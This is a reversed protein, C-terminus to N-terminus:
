SVVTSDDKIYYPTNVDLTDIATGATNTFALCMPEHSDMTTATGTTPVRWKRSYGESPETNVVMSTCGYFMAEYCYGGLKTSPLNPPCLLNTSDIFFGFFRRADIEDVLGKYTLMSVLDGSCMVQKSFHMGIGRNNVMSAGGFAANTGRLYIVGNQSKLSSTSNAGLKSTEWTNCDYSYEVNSIGAYRTSVTFDTGDLTYFKLPEVSSEIASWAFTTFDATINDTDWGYVTGTNGINYDLEDYVLAAFVDAGNYVFTHTDGTSECTFEAGTKTVTFKVDPSFNKHQFSKAAEGDIYISTEYVPADEVVTYLNITTDAGITGSFTHEFAGYIAITSGTTSSLGLLNKTANEYTYITPKVAIYTDNDERYEFGEIVYVYQINDSMTTGSHVGIKVDPSSGYQSATYVIEDDIQVVSTFSVDNIDIADIYIKVTEVPESLTLLGSGKNWSYTAGYVVVDDPLIYGLDAKFKLYTFEDGSVKMPNSNDATVGTLATTITFHPTAGVIEIAVAGTPNSLILKGTIKTWSATAGTVTVTNPLIHGPSAEFYLTATDDRHINAPCNGIVKANILTMDISYSNAVGSVLVSVDATPEYLLLKGSAQDWEYSANLVSVTSPLTYGTNAAFMLVLPNGDDALASIPIPSTLPCTAHICEINVSYTREGVFTGVITIIVNGTPNSLTLVGQGWDYAEVGEVTIDMPLTYRNDATFSMSVSGGTEILAPNMSGATVGTLHTTISYTEPVGRITVSVEGTPNYLELCGSSWTYDANEVTITEPLHYGNNVQFVGSVLGDATIRNPVQITSSVGILNVLVSYANGVVMDCTAIHGGDSIAAMITAEGAAKATCIAHLGDGVVSVVNSASSSWSIDQVGANSSSPEAFLDFTDGIYMDSKSSASLSVGTAPVFTDPYTELQDAIPYVTITRQDIELIDGTDAHKVRFHVKVKYKDSFLMTEEPTLAVALDLDTGITYCDEKFKTIQALPDPNHEQWFHIHIWELEDKPYPVKFKFQATTGRIM